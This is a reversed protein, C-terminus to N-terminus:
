LTSFSRELHAKGTPRHTITVETGMRKLSNMIRKVEDTNHGPFRDTVLEYPLYGTNQVAMKLAAMVAWRNESYDFNYGLLDGSYVDRVAVIFLFGKGKDKAHEIMNVRTADVQWCDGAFLANQMPIYGTQEFAKRSGQGYRGTATLYKTKPQEFVKMGFWRRGPVKQGRVKYANQITRIIFENTYNQPMARMKM